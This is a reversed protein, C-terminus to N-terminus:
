QVSNLHKYKKLDKFNEINSPKIELGSLYQGAFKDLEDM